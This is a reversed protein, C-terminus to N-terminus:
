ILQDFPTMLQSSQISKGLAPRYVESKCKQKLCKEERAAKEKERSKESDGMFMASAKAIPQAASLTSKKQLSATSSSPVCSKLYAISSTASRTAPMNPVISSSGNAYVAMTKLAGHKGPKSQIYKVVDNAETQIKSGM